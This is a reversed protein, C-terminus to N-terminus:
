ACGAALVDDTGGKVCSGVSWWARGFGVGSDCM